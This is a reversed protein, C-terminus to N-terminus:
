AGAFNSTVVDVLEPISAYIIFYMIQGQGFSRSGLTLIKPDLDCM